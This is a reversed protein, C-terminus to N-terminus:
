HLDNDVVSNTVTNSVTQTSLRTRTLDTPEPNTGKTLKSIERITGAEYHKILERQGLENIIQQIAGGLNGADMTSLAAWGKTDIVEQIGLNTAVEYKLAEIAPEVGPVMKYNRNRPRAM